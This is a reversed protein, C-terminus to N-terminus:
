KKGKQRRSYLRGSVAAFVAAPLAAAPFAEPPVTSGCGRAAPAEPSPLAGTDAPYPSADAPAAGGTSEPCEEAPLIDALVYACGPTLKSTKGNQFFTWPNDGDLRVDGQWFGIAATGAASTVILYQKGGALSLGLDLTLKENDRHDRVTGSVLAEGRVSSQYSGMWEYARYSLDSGPGDNSWTPASIFIFKRLVKGEPIVPSLIAFQEDGMIRHPDLSAPSDIITIPEGTVILEGKVGEIPALFEDGGDDLFDVYLCMTKGGTGEFRIYNTPYAPDGEPLVVYPKVNDHSGTLQSVSFIYQGAPYFERLPIVFGYGNDHAVHQTDVFLPEGGLTHADSESFAYLRFEVMVDTGNEPTGSWIVPFGIQHFPKKANFVAYATGTCIGESDFLNLWIGIEPDGTYLRQRTTKPDVSPPASPEPSASPESSAFSGHPAGAEAAASFVASVPLLFAAALAACFILATLRLLATKATMLLGKQIIHDTETAIVDLMGRLPGHLTGTTFTERLVFRERRSRKAICLADGDRVM